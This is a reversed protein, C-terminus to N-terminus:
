RWSTWRLVKTLDNEFLNLSLLGFVKYSFIVKVMFWIRFHCYMHRIHFAFFICVGM